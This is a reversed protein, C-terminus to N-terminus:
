ARINRVIWDTYASVRTYVGPWGEMGCPSPGFSVIGAVYWFPRTPNSKDVTMLPGGSDGRCSDAGKAGGACLQGSGLTVSHRSYVSNCRETTVGPVKVKLKYQSFSVTFPFDILRGSHGYIVM